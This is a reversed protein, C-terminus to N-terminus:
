PPNPASASSIPPSIQVTITTPRIRDLEVVLRGHDFSWVALIDVTVTLLILDRSSFKM